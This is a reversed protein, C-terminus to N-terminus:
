AAGPTDDAHGRLPREKVGFAVVTAIAMLAAAVYFVRHLSTVFSSILRNKFDQQEALFSQEAQTQAAPPLESQALGKELGSNIKQQVDAQNLTLATDISMDSGIIQASAPQAKLTQIYPDQNLNGLLHAVGLTLISGMIATGITSGLGRFLQSSATVAGLERQEFENQVALNMIPMGTGLGMGVLAM